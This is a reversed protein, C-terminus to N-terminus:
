AGPQPGYLYDRTIPAADTRRSLQFQWVDNRGCRFTAECAALYFKWMRVFRADHIAQAEAARATFRDFWHRLTMAYHLRWCEIDAVRLGTREIAPTVESMSPVHGGPFIHKRIWANSPASPAAHGITHILAIGDETLRDRVVRFYAGYNPRGVHEFMGVSVVRDFSESVNRYDQLRFEVQGALGARHARTRAIALQEESLTIGVVKAGYDRALTLAMGGWGCGIDLVRMGPQICLKRAIHHKKDSQAKELTNGPDRFYACSYQKDADLFLDYLAPTLDYHHAVNARSRRLGNLQRLPSVVSGAAERLRYWRAPDPAATNRVATELFGHLDDGDITLTGDMYAEGVALQPDLAIRRLTADDRIAVCPGEGSGYQVIRGDPYRITLAGHRLFSRLMRDLVSQWM